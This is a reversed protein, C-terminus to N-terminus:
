DIRKNINKESKKKWLIILGAFIVIVGGLLTFKDPFEGFFLYGFLIAWLIASYRFQSVFSVQGTRMVAVSLQYAIVLATTAAILLLLTYSNIPVWATSLTLAGSILTISFAALFAIDVTRINGRMRRTSLDRLVVFFVAGLGLLSYKDFGELGPSLIILIGLFGLVLAVVVQRKLVEKFILYSVLTIAIPTAQLIMMLNAIPMQFLASLFCWTGGIEGITRLIILSYNGKFDRFINQFKVCSLVFLVVSTLMGRVFIAQALPLDPSALKMFVDNILFALMSLMMIIAGRRNDNM